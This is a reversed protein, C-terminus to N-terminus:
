LQSQLYLPNDQWPFTRPEDRALWCCSVNYNDRLQQVVKVRVYREAQCHVWIQGPGTFGSQHQDPRPRFGETQASAQGPEHWEYDRRHNESGGVEEVRSYLSFLSSLVLVPSTLILHLFPFHPAVHPHTHPSWQVVPWIFQSEKDELIKNPILWTEGPTEFQDTLNQQWTLEKQKTKLHLTMWPKFLFCHIFM